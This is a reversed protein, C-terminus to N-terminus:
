NTQSRGSRRDCFECALPVAHVAPLLLVGCAIALWLPAGILVLWQALLVAAVIELASGIKLYRAVM